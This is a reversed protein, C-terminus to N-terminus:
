VFLFLVVEIQSGNIEWDMVDIWGIVVKNYFLFNCYVLLGFYMCKFVINYVFRLYFFVDFKQLIYIM